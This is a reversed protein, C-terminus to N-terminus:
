HKRRYCLDRVEHGLRLGRAEFRTQVREPAIAAFNGAGAENCLLPQQELVALMWDAYPVWDTALWLLGGPRLRDALLDVFAPAILRRKHHRSKPWPDPFFIRVEDLSASGLMRELVAEAPAEVVRVNSLGERELGLLLAGIGAQYIEIGLLNWDPRQQAWDLLAQGMGFGIELGLPAERGYCAASDLAGADPNLRYDDLTQFARTQGATMRGRRRIFVRDDGPRPAPRRLASAQSADAPADDAASDQDDTM